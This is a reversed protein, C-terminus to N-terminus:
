LWGSTLLHKQSEFVRAEEETLAEVQSLTLGAAERVFTIFRGFFVSALCDLLMQRDGITIKPWKLASQFIVTAWTKPDITLCNADQTLLCDFVPDFQANFIDSFFKRNEQAFSRSSDLFETMPALKRPLTLPPQLDTGIVPTPRSRSNKLWFDPYQAILNFLSGCVDIFLDRSSPNLPPLVSGCRPNAMFSQCIRAKHSIALINMTMETEVFPRDFPWRDYSLFIDNLQPGFARDTAFPQRLRRGFVSRFLPYALLNAVPTDFKLSHYFPATMEAQNNLIPGLLRGIWTRKVTSLNTDITVIGKAELNKALTMLNILSHVRSTDYAKTGLFIKPVPSPLELFAKRTKEFSESACYVIVSNLDPYTQKLGEYAKTLPLAIHDEDTLGMLGVVLDAQQVSESAVFSSVFAQDLISM